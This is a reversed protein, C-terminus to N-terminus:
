TGIANFSDSRKTGGGMPSAEILNMDNLGDLKHKGGERAREKVLNWSTWYFDLEGLWPSTGSM